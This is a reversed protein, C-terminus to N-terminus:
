NEMREYRRKAPKKKKLFLMQGAAEILGIYDRTFTSHNIKWLKQEKKM